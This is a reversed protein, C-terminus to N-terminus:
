SIERASKDGDSPARGLRQCARVYAVMLAFFAFTALVYILDIVAFREMRNESGERRGASRQLAARKASFGADTLM